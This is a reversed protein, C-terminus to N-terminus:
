PKHLSGLFSPLAGPIGYTSRTQLSRGVFAPASVVKKSPPEHQSNIIAAHLMSKGKRKWLKRLWDASFQKQKGALEFADTLLSALGEWNDPEPRGLWLCIFCLFLPVDWNVNKKGYRRLFQGMKSAERRWRKALVRMGAIAFPIGPDESDPRPFKMGLLNGHACFFYWTRVNWSPDRTYEDAQQSLAELRKASARLAMQRDRVIRTWGKQGEGDAVLALCRCIRGQDLGARVLCRLESRGKSEIQKALDAIREERETNTM